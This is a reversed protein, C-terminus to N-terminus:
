GLNLSHTPPARLIHWRQEDSPTIRFMSYSFLFDPDFTMVGSYYIVYEIVQNAVLWDITQSPVKKMHLFIVYCGGGGELIMSFHAQQQM